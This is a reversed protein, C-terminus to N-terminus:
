RRINLNDADILGLEKVHPENIDAVLKGVPANAHNHRSEVHVETTNGETRHRAQTGNGVVHCLHMGNTHTAATQGIEAMAKDM